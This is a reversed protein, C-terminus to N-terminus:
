LKLSMTRCVDEFGNKKYFKVAPENFEYVNLEIQDIGDLKARRKLEDFLMQGAGSHRHAEEIAISDILMWRRPQIIPYDPAQRVYAEAFGIILDDREAVLLHACPTELLTNFYDEPRGIVEPARFRDPHRDRHLKDVQEYLINLREFDEKVASRIIM